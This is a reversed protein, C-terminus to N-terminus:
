DDLLPNLCIDSHSDFRGIAVLRDSGLINPSNLQDFTQNSSHSDFRGIASRNSEIEARDAEIESRDIQNVSRDDKSDKNEYETEDYDYLEYNTACGAKICKVYELDVLKALHVKLQTDGMGVVDRLQRRTFNKNDTKEVFDKITSLLRKAQPPLEDKATGYVSEYLKTACEVDKYNAEIYTVTKNAITVLKRERQFQHALAIARILGLYKANDRRHRTSSNAFSLNPAHPNVVAIPKLLRQMCHHTDILIKAQTSNMLGDLTERNRQAIQVAKTQQQSDDVSLVILRNALEEDLEATTTTMLLAVPGTVEYSSTVLRGTTPDKGAAAISLKGDSVLLKLAYSARSAGQEESISLVKNALDAQGLYYLAQGTMASYSIKQEDPILALASDGLTSKGSASSSQIITGLPRESLRSTLTLWTMLCGTKEGVVGQISFAKIVHDLLDNSTLIELAAEKTESDIPEVKDSSKIEAQAQEVALLVTGLEKLIENLDQHFEKAVSEGFALRQKAVYLDVVDCFFRDGFSVMVTVKLTSGSSKPIHRIRYHRDSIDLILEDHKNVVPTVTNPTVTNPTVTNLTVPEIDLAIETTKLPEANQLPETTKLPEATQNKVASILAKSSSNNDIDHTDIDHTSPKPSNDTTQQPKNISRNQSRIENKELSNNSSGIFIASSILKTLTAKPNDSSVVVENIDSSYPVVIRLCEIGYDNLKNALKIAAQDGSVDHDYAILCRKVKNLSFASLHDDTFGNTGYSSTVNKFGYNYFSLADILSECLIVTSDKLGEENLLGKHSGKLYLHLPTGARLSSTIKRGYIETVLGTTDIVPIVLSGSFHEHGSARIIGLEQLKERIQRGAKRNKEPLRLGLSRNSYGLKFKDIVESSNIKRTKLYALCEPSEKLTEHYFATLENLIDQSNSSTIPNALKRVTGVKVVSNSYTVDSKLLEIAHRFSVGQTLMVWDIVSGGKDCAGLCHFLGKDKSVVLSPTKDNHFPCLGIYDNGNNGTRKLKVGTSNVLAVLDTETKLKNITEDSINPM